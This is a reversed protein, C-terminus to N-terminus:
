RYGGGIEERIAEMVRSLGNAELVDLPRAGDLFANRGELWQDIVDEVWVRRLLERVAQTDREVSARILARGLDSADRGFLPTSEDPM